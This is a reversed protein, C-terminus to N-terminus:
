IPNLRSILMCRSPHYRPRPEPEKVGPEDPSVRPKCPFPPQDLQHFGITATTGYTLHSLGLADRGPGLYLGWRRDVAPGNPWDCLAIAKTWDWCIVPLPEPLKRATATKTAPFLSYFARERRARTRAHQCGDWTGLHLPGPAGPSPRHGGLRLKFPAGPSPRIPKPPKGPRWFRSVQPVWQEERIKSDSVRAVRGECLPCPIFRLKEFRGTRVRM